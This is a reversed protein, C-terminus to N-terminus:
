DIEIIEDKIKEGKLNETKLSELEQEPLNKIEKKVSGIQCKDKFNNLLEQFYKM